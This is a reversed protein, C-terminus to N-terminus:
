TTPIARTSGPALAARLDWLRLLLGTSALTQGDPDFALHRAPGGFVRLLGRDRGTDVDFLRVANNEGVAAVKGDPSLALSYARVTERRSSVREEGTAVDWVRVTEPGVAFLAKGDPTFQMEDFAEGDRFRPRTVERGATVDFLRVESTAAPAGVAPAGVAPAVATPVPIRQEKDEARFTGLAALSRGDPSFVLTDLSFEYGERSHRSFSALTEGLCCGQPYSRAAGAGSRWPAVTPRSVCVPWRAGPIM